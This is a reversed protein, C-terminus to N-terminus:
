RKGGIWIVILSITIGIIMGFTVYMAYTNFLEDGPITHMTNKFTEFDTMKNNIIELITQWIKLLSQKLGEM